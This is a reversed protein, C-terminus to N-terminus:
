FTWQVGIGGWLNEEPISIVNFWDQIGDDVITSADFHATIVTQADFQYSLSVTGRLDAFGAERVGYNWWSQGRSSYGLGGELGLTLDSPLPIAAGLSARGYFGDAQDFDYRLEVQPRLSIQELLEVSTRVFVENTSSRPGNPFSEGNPLNYNHAGATVVLGAADEGFDHTYATIFDIQTFRGGHGNPFWAAGTRDRLDLNGFAQVDILGDDWTTPLGLGLNGQAVWNRNNPMGRHLFKDAVEVGVSTTPVETESVICGTLCPLALALALSARAPVLASPTM